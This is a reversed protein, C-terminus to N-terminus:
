GYTAASGSPMRFTVIEQEVVADDEFRRLWEGPAYRVPYEIDVGCNKLAVLLLNTLPLVICGASAGVNLSDMKRDAAVSSPPEMSRAFQRVASIEHSVMFDATVFITGEFAT